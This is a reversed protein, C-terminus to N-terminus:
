LNKKILNEIEAKDFGGAYIIKGTKDIIIVTPFANVGYQEALEGGEFLMKYVPKHKKYFFAIDEKADQTNISLLQFKDAGFKLQLENLHPFSALCPGCSKIWFDLMVIKGRYQYLSVSDIKQLSYSPLVWDELQVGSNVLPKKPKPAQYADTYTSYFWSLEAPVKPNTNINTFSAAIFDEKHDKFKTIYQSPLFTKKDIIIEYPKNKDGTYEATFNTISGLNGLYQNYLEFKLLYFIKTGIATDVIVKKISDNKILWPFIAKLSILSNYIPSLSEFVEKGPKQKIDITKDKKNLEFYQSGNYCSFYKDDEAQFRYFANNSSANFNIYIVTNYINHYNEGTYVSERRYKYSVTKIGNLKASVLKLIQATEDSTYIGQSYCITILLSFSTILFPYLIKRM